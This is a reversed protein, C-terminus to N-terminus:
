RFYRRRPFDEEYFDNRRTPRNRQRYPRRDFFDEDDGDFDDNRGFNRRYNFDMNRRPRYAQGGRPKAPGSRNYSPRVIDADKNSTKNDLPIFDNNNNNNGSTTGGTPTPPHDIDMAAGDEINREVSNRDKNREERKEKEKDKKNEQAAIIKDICEGIDNLKIMTVNFNNSATLEVEELRERFNALANDQAKQRMMIKTLFNVSLNDMKIILPQQLTNSNKKPLPPPMRGNDNLLEKTTTDLDVNQSLPIDMATSCNQALIPICPPSAPDIVDKFFDEPIKEEIHQTSGALPTFDHGPLVESSKHTTKPSSTRNESKDSCNTTSDTIADWNLRANTKLRKALPSVADSSMQVNNNCHNNFSSTHLWSVNDLGLPVNM